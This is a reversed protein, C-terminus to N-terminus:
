TLSLKYQVQVSLCADGGVVNLAFGGSMIESFNTTPRRQVPSLLCVEKVEEIHALGSFVHV